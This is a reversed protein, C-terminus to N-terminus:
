QTPSIKAYIFRVCPLCLCEGKAEMGVGCGCVVANNVIRWWRCGKWVRGDGSGVGGVMSRIMRKMADM